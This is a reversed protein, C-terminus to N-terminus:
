APRICTVHKAACGRAYDRIVRDATALDSSLVNVIALYMSPNRRLVDLFAEKPVLTVRCEELCTVTLDSVVGAIICRLGFVKGPRATCVSVAEEGVPVSITASGAELIALADPPLGYQVLRTGKAATVTREHNALEQQAEESMDRYLENALASQLAMQTGRHEEGTQVTKYVLGGSVYTVDTVSAQSKDLSAPAAALQSFLSWLNARSNMNQVEAFFARARAIHNL